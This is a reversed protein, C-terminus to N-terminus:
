EVPREAEAEEAAENNVMALEIGRSGHSAEKKGSTQEAGKEAAAATSSWAKAGGDVHVHGESAPEVPGADERLRTGGARHRRHELLERLGRLDAGYVQRVVAACVLGCACLGCLM